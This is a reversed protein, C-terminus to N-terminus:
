ISRRSSRTWDLVCTSSRSGSSARLRNHPKASRQKWPEHTRAPEKSGFPAWSFAQYRFCSPSSRANDAPLRLTSYSARALSSIHPSFPSPSLRLLRTRFHPRTAVAPKLAPGSSSWAFNPISAPLSAPSGLPPRRAVQPRPLPPTAAQTRRPNSRSRLQLNARAASSQSNNVARRQLADM